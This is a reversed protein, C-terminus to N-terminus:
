AARRRVRANRTAITKAVLELDEEDVTAIRAGILVRVKGRSYGLVRGTVDNWNTLSVEDGMAFGAGGRRKAKTERAKHRRRLARMIPYPIPQPKGNASCLLHAVGATHNIGGWTNRKLDIVAFIYRPFLLRGTVSISRGNVRYESKVPILMKGERRFEARLPVFTPFGQDAVGVSARVEQNPKTQICYWRKM